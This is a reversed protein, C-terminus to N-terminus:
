DHYLSEKQGSQDILISGMSYFKSVCGRYSAGGGGGGAVQREVQGAPKALAVASGASEARKRVRMRLRHYM